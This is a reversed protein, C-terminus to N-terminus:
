KCPQKDKEDLINFISQVKEGYSVRIFAQSSEKRALRLADLAERMRKATLKEPM